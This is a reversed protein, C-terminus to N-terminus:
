AQYPLKSCINDLSDEIGGLTALHISIKELSQAVSQYKGETDFYEKIQQIFHEWHGSDWQTQSDIQINLEGGAVTFLTIASLNHSLSYGVIMKLDIVLEKETVSSFLKAKSNKM